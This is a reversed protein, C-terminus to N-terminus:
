EEPLVPKWDEFWQDLTALEDFGWNFRDQVLGVTPWIICSALRAFEATEFLLNLDRTSPLRWGAPQIAERYVDLIRPRDTFPFRLLFTSLDYSIPGVGAHDWGVLRAQVGQRGPLVFIRTAWLDGHVLTEPGGFEALAQARMALQEQLQGVRARLRQRLAAQDASLEVAPPQLADLCRMADRVNAAYFRIGYDSGLLRCEALLAHGAFRVHLQAILEAAARVRGLDLHKTDLPQNGFDDYVHWVAQASREAAVGLLTPGHNGLGVAPLWRRILLQNRQAIDLEMRKVVMSRACGDCAFRVRYVRRRRAALPEEDLVHATTRPGGLIELLLERLEVLGPQDTEELLTDLGDIM